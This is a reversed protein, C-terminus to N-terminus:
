RHHHGLRRPKTLPRAECSQRGRRRRARPGFLRREGLGRARVAREGGNRSSFPPRHADSRMRGNGHREAEGHRLAFCGEERRNGSSRGFAVRETPARPRRSWASRARARPQRERRSNHESALIHGSARKRDREKSRDGLRPTCTRPHAIGSCPWSSTSQGCAADTANAGSGALERAVPPGHFELPIDADAFVLERLGGGLDARPKPRRDSARIRGM